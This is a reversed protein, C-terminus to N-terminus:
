FAEKIRNIEDCIEKGYATDMNIYTYCNIHNVAGDFFNSRELSSTIISYNKRIEVIKDNKDESVMLDPKFTENMIYPISYYKVTDDEKIIPVRPGDDFFIPTIINGNEDLVNGHNSIQYPISTINSPIEIYFEAINASYINPIEMQYAIIINYSKNTACIFNIFAKLVDVLEDKNDSIPIIKTIVIIKDKELLGTYDILTNYEPDKNKRIRDIIDFIPKAIIIDSTCKLDKRTVESWHIKFHPLIIQSSKIM